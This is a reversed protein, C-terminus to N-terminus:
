LSFCLLLVMMASFSLIASDSSTQPDDVTDFNPNPCTYFAYAAQGYLEDGTTWVNLRCEVHNTQFELPLTNKPNADDEYAEAYALQFAGGRCDAFSVFPFRHPVLEVPFGPMWAYRMFISNLAAINMVNTPVDSAGLPEGVLGGWGVIQPPNENGNEILARIFASCTSFCLGNTLIQIKEVPYSLYEPSNHVSSLEADVQSDTNLSLEFLDSYTSTKGGRTYRKSNFYWAAEPDNEHTGVAPHAFLSGLFLTNELLTQNNSHYIYDMTFDMLDNHLIDFNNISNADQINPNVLGALYYGSYLLGGGNFSVDLILRDWNYTHISSLYLVSFATLMYQVGFGSDFTPVVMAGVESSIPVLKFSDLQVTTLDASIGTRIRADSQSSACIESIDTATCYNVFENASSVGPLIPRTMLWPLEITQTEGTTPHTLTWTLSSAPIENDIPNRSTFLALAQNFRTAQDRFPVYKDAYDLLYDLANQNDIKEVIFGVYSGVGISFNEEYVLDNITDRIVIEQKGNLEVYSGLKFPQFVSWGTYCRPYVWLTHTDRMQIFAEAIDSHLEYDSNYNSNSIRDIERFIDLSIQDGGYSVDTNVDKYIYFAMADELGDVIEDRTSSSFPVSQLCSIGDELTLFFAGSGFFDCVGARETRRYLETPTELLLDKTESVDQAYVVQCIEKEVFNSSAPDSSRFSTTDFFFHAVFAGVGDFLVYFSIDVTKGNTLQVQDSQRSIAAQEKVLFATQGINLQYQESVSYYYPGPQVQVGIENFSISNPLLSNCGISNFITNPDTLDARTYSGGGVWSPGQCVVLSILFVGIVCASVLTPQSSTM